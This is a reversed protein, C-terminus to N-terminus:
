KGDVDVAAVPVETQPGPSDPGIVNASGGGAEEDVSSVESALDTFEVDARGFTGESKGGGGGGDNGGGNGGRCSWWM